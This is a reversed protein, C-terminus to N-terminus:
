SPIATDIPYSTPFYAQLLKTYRHLPYCHVTLMPYDLPLLSQLSSVASGVPFLHPFYAKSLHKRPPLTLFYAQSLALSPLCIRSFNPFYPESLQVSDPLFSPCCVPLLTSLLFNLKPYVYTGVPSPLFTLKHGSYIRFSTSFYVQFLQVQQFSPILTLKSLRHLLYIYALTYLLSQLLTQFLQNYFPPSNNFCATPGTSFLQSSQHATSCFPPPHQIRSRGPSWLYLKPFQFFFRPFPGVQLSPHSLIYTPVPICYAAFVVHSTSVEASRLM